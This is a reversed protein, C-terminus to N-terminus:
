ASPNGRHEQSRIVEGVSEGEGRGWHKATTRVTAIM